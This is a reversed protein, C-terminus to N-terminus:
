SFVEIAETLLFNYSTLFRVGNWTVIQNNYDGESVGMQLAGGKYIGLANLTNPHCYILTNGPNARADTLMKNVQAETPLAKYGTASESDPTLDINAIGSVYKPNALQLGFFNKITMGQVEVGGANLYESGGSLATLKFANGSTPDFLGTTEGSVWKVCLMSTEKDVTDGLANDLKGNAKAFVRINNYLLSKETQAGTERLVTPIQKAFYNAAGGFKSAKDVGVEIKGGIKGVEVYKTESDVGVDPLAEDLAVLQAGDVKKIEEYVNQWGNSTEEMPIAALIPAEETVADVLAAQKPAQEIAVERFTNDLSM